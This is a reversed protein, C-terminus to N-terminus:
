ISRDNNQRGSDQRQAFGMTGKEPGSSHAANVEKVVSKYVARTTDQMAMHGNEALHIVVTGKADDGKSSKGHEDKDAIFQMGLVRDPDLHFDEAAEIFKDEDISKIM